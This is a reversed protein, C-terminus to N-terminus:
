RYKHQNYCQKQAKPMSWQVLMDTPFEDDFLEIIAEERDVALRSKQSLSCPHSDPSCCCEGVNVYCLVQYCGGLPCILMCALLVPVIM